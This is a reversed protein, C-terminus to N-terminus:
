LAIRYQIFGSKDAIRDYLLMANANSEHTLWYVRSAQARRAQGYVYEILARGAGTGRVRHDVFLDQLYCYDGVTWTSRHFIWHVMGVAQGDCVALAGAMPQETALLRQWTVETTSPPIEVQYFAQYGEWLRLWDDYHRPELAEINVPQNVRVSGSFGQM